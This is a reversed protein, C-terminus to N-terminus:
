YVSYYMGKDNVTLDGYMQHTESWHLNELTAKINKIHTEFLETDEELSLKRALDSLYTAQYGMWCLLDLHLEGDDPPFARPYDDLGTYLISIYIILIM